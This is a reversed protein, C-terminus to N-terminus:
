VFHEPLEEILPLKAKYYNNPNGYINILAYLSSIQMRTSSSSPTFRSVRRLFNPFNDKAVVALIPIYNTFKNIRLVM